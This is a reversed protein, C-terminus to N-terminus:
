ALLTLLKEKEAKLKCFPISCTYHTYGIAHPSSGHGYLTDIILDRFFLSIYSNQWLSTNCFLFDPSFVIIIPFPNAADPFAIAQALHFKRFQNSRASACYGDPLGLDIIM